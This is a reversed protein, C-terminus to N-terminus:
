GGLVITSPQAAPLYVTLYNRESGDPSERVSLTQETRTIAIHKAIWILLPVHSLPTKALNRVPARDRAGLHRRPISLAAAKSIEPSTGTRVVQHLLSLVRLM